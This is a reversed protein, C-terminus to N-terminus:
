EDRSEILEGIDSAQPPNKPTEAKGVASDDRLISGSQTEGAARSGDSVSARFWNVLACVFDLNNKGNWDPELRGFLNLGHGYMPSGAFEGVKDVRGAYVTAPGDEWSWTGQTAKASLEMLEEPVACRDSSGASLSSKPAASTVDFDNEIQSM